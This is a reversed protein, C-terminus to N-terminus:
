SKKKKKGFCSLFHWAHNSFHSAHNTCMESKCNMPQTGEGVTSKAHHEEPHYSDIFVQTKKNEEKEQPLPILNLMIFAWVCDSSIPRAGEGGGWEELYPFTTGKGRGM